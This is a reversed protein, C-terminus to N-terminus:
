PSIQVTLDFRVGTPLFQLESSGRVGELLARHLLRTGFGRKSPVNVEPGGMEEWTLSLEDEEARWVLSVSGTAVSLAGYKTANTALENLALSLAFAVREPVLVNPGAVRFQGEDLGRYPLLARNVLEPLDILGRTNSTLMETVNVYAQLRADFIVRAEELLRGPRFSQHALSQALTWSNKIRHQLERAAIAMQQEHLKRETVDMVVGIVRPGGQPNPAATQAQVLLWKVAGDPMIHKVEARLRDEGRALADRGLQELREGEGPAYRSRLDDATPTDDPQFGYLVNLAPSPTVTDSLVDLEWVALQGADLALALRVSEESLQQEREVTATIDEFTGIYSQAVEKGDRVAFMAEGHAEIWRVAGDTQRRIRYRYTSRSRVLPDLAASSLRLVEPVDEPHIAQQLRERTVAGDEFGFIDMARTTLSFHNTALDWEWIGIGSALLAIDLRRGLRQGALEAAKRDQNDIISGIYGQVKGGPGIIPAASDIAWRYEGAISRVRYETQYPQSNACASSFAHQISPRDDPHIYSLWGSGLGGDFSQGTFDTWTKSLFTCDGETTAVWIMAPVIDVLRRFDSDTDIARAALHEPV